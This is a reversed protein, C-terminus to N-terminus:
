VPASANGAVFTTLLTGTLSCATALASSALVASTLLALLPSETVIALATSLVTTFVGNGASIGAVLGATGLECGVAGTALATGSLAGTALAWGTSEATGSVIGSDWAGATLSLSAYAPAGNRFCQALCYFIICRHRQRRDVLRSTTFNRCITNLNHILDMGILDQLVFVANIHVVKIGLTDQHQRGEEM